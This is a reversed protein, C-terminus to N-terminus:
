DKCGEDEYQEPEFVIIAFDSGCATLQLLLISHPHVRYFFFARTSPSPFREIGLM